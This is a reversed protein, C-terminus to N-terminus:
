DGSAVTCKREMCVPFPDRYRTLCDNGRWSCVLFVSSLHGQLQDTTPNLINELWNRHWSGAVMLS